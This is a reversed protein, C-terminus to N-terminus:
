LGSKIQFQEPNEVTSKLGWFQLIEKNLVYSTQLVLREVIHVAYPVQQIKQLINQWFYNRGM